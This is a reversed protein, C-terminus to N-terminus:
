PASPSMSDWKRRQPCIGAVGGIALMDMASTNFYGTWLVVGAKPLTFAVRHASDCDGPRCTLSFDEVKCPASTGPAQNQALGKEQASVVVVLEEAAGTFQTVDSAVRFVAEAEREEVLAEERVSSLLTETNVLPLGFCESLGATKGRYESTFVLVSLAKAVIAVELLRMAEEVNKANTHRVAVQEPIDIAGIETDMYKWLKVLGKGEEGTASPSYETYAGGSVYVPAFTANEHDLVRRIGQEKDSLALLTRKAEERNSPFAALRDMYSYMSLQSLKVSRLSLGWGEMCPDSSKPVLSVECVSMEPIFDMGVPLLNKEVDEARLFVKITSGAGLTWTIDDCREGKDTGKRQYSWFQMSGDSAMATLPKSPPRNGGKRNDNYKFPARQVGEAHPAVVAFNVVCTERGGEEFAEKTCPIAKANVMIFTAGASRGTSGTFAKRSKVKMSNYVTSLM